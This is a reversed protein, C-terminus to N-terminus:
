DDQGLRRASLWDDSATHQGEYLCEVAVISARPSSRGSPPAAMQLGHPASRLHLSRRPPYRERIVILDVDSRAATAV